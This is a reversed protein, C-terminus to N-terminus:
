IYISINKPVNNTTTDDASMLVMTRSTILVCGM